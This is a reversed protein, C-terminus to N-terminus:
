AKAYSLLLSSITPDQLMEDEGFSLFNKLPFLVRFIFLSSLPLCVVSIVLPICLISALSFKSM